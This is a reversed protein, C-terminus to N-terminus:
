EEFQRVPAEARGDFSVLVAPAALLAAAIVAKSLIAM